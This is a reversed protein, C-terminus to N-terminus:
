DSEGVAMPPQHALQLQQATLQQKNAKHREFEAEEHEAAVCFM